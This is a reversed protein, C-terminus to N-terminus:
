PKRGRVTTIGKDIVKGDILAVYMLVDKTTWGGAVSNRGRLRPNLQEGPVGTWRPPGLIEEVQDATMGREVKNFNEQTVLESTLVSKNNAVGNMFFVVIELTGRKWFFNRLGAAPPAGGPRGGPPEGFGAGPAGGPMGAFGGGPRGLGPAGTGPVGRPPVGPAGLGPAGPPIGPAAGGANGSENGRKIEQPPGLLEVVETETMGQKVKKYNELTVKDSGGAPDVPIDPSGAPVPASPVGAEPKTKVKRPKSADLFVFVVAAVRTSDPGVNTLGVYLAGVNSSYCVWQGVKVAAVQAVQEPSLGTPPGFDNGKGVIGMVDLWRMGPNIRDYALVPDRSDGAPPQVPAAGGNGPNEGPGVMRPRGPLNAGADPNAPPLAPNAQGGGPNVPPGTAKAGLPAPNFSTPAPNAPTKSDTSAVSSGSSDSKDRDLLLVLAIAAGSLLVLAGAIIGVM